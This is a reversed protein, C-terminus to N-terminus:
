VTGVPPTLIMGSWPSDISLWRDHREPSWQTSRWTLNTTSRAVGLPWAKGKSPEPLYIARVGPTWRVGGTLAGPDEDPREKPAGSQAVRVPLTEWQSGASSGNTEDVRTASAILGAGPTPIGALVIRIDAYRM